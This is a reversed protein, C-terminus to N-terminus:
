DPATAIARKRGAHKAAYIAVDSAHIVTAADMGDDPLSAIGAYGLEDIPLVGTKVAELTFAIASALLLGLTALM